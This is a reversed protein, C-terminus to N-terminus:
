KSAEYFKTINQVLKYAPRKGRVDTLIDSVYQPSYGIGQAIQTQTFGKAKLKTLMTKINM